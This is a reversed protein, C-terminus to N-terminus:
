LSSQSWPTNPQIVYGSLGLHANILTLVSVCVIRKRLIISFRLHANVLTLVNLSLREPNTGKVIKNIAEYSPNIKYALYHKRIDWYLNEFRDAAFFQEILDPFQILRSKLIEGEIIITEYPPQQNKMDALWPRAANTIYSSVFIVLYNLRGANAWAIKSNPTEPSCWRRLTQVM